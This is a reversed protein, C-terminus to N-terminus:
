PKRAPKGLDAVRAGAQAELVALTAFFDKSGLGAALAAQYVGHAATTMPLEAGVAAASELALGVDKAAIALAFLERDVDHSLVLPARALLAGASSAQLVALLTAADMGAKAGLVFGEQILVSACLFIQNNVLKALTGAGVPGLHFIHEAFCALLPRIATFAAADGGVMVALKGDRAAIKGGSVPADLYAVGTAAARAAVDRALQVANTSLDVITTLAGREALLGDAGCVVAEIQAPGPLSLFITSCSRALAAADPAAKAGADVLAQVAQPARDYVRLAHGQTLLRAAMPGGITGTGIFGIASM